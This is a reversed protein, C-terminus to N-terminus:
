ANHIISNLYVRFLDGNPSNPKHAHPLFLSHAGDPAVSHRTRMTLQGATENVTATHLLLLPFRFSVARRACLASTSNDHSFFSAIALSLATSCQSFAAVDHVRLNILSLIIPPFPRRHPERRRSERQAEARHAGAIRATMSRSFEAICRTDDKCSAAQKCDGSTNYRDYLRSNLTCVCITANRTFM